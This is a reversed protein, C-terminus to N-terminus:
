MACVPATMRADKGSADAKLKLVEIIPNDAETSARALYLNGAHQFLTGNEVAGESGENWVRASKTKSTLTVAGGQQGFGVAVGPSLTILDFVGDFTTGVGKGARTFLRSQACPGACPTITHVVLDGVFGVPTANQKKYERDRSWSKVRVAKDKKLDWLEFDYEYGVITLAKDDSLVIRESPERPEPNGENIARSAETYSADLAKRAKKGLKICSTEGAGVCIADRKASFHTAPAAAKPASSLPRVAGSALDIGACRKGEHDCSGVLKAAPDYVLAGERLCAASKSAPRAVAPQALAVSTASLLMFVAGAFAGKGVCAIAM